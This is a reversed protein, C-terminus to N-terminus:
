LFEIKFEKAFKKYETDLTLIVAKPYKKALVLNFCDFYAIGGRTKYKAAELCDKYDPNIIKLNFSSSLDELFNEVQNTAKYKCGSYYVEGLNVTNAIIEIQAEFAQDLYKAVIPATKENAIFATFVCADVIYQKM